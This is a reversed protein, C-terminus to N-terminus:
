DRWLSSIDGFKFTAILTATLLIARFFHKYKTIEKELNSVQEGIEAKTTAVDKQLSKIEDRLSARDSKSEEIHATILGKIAEMQGKLYGIDEEM